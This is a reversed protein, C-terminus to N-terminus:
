MESITCLNYNTTRLLCRDTPWSGEIQFHLGGSWTLFHFGAMMVTFPDLIQFNFLVNELGYIIWDKYLFFKCSQCFM